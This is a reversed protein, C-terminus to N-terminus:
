EEMDIEPYYQNMCKDCIGHTFDAESHEVIYEELPEWSGRDNRIKKCISCIPLLGNLTKIKALAEQLEAILESKENEAKKRESIDRCVGLIGMLEGSPDVMGSICAEMWITGGEMCICELEHVVTKGKEEMSREQIIEQGAATIKNISEGTMLESLSRRMTEEPTFGTLSKISPSVYTLQGSLDGTWILDHTNEAILRYREESERLNKEVEQKELARRIHLLLQEMDYPKLLFSFAGRNTAEIAVDVSSNGTLIIAETTKNSEKLRSLVDLGPMDPLGLDIIALHILTSEICDLGEQGGSVATVDYQKLRLIGTLTKRINADDDIVLIKKKEMSRDKLHSAFPGANM